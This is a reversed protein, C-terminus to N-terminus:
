EVPDARNPPQKERQLTPEAILDRLLDAAMVLPTQV